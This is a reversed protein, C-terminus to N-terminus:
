LGDGCWAHLQRLGVGSGRGLTFLYGRGLDDELRFRDEQVLTVVGRLHGRRPLDARRTLISQRQKMATGRAHHLCLVCTSRGGIAQGGRHRRLAHQRRRDSRACIVSAGLIRRAARPACACAALASGGWPQGDSVASGLSRDATAAGSRAADSSLCRYHRVRHDLSAAGGARVAGGGLPQAAWMAPAWCHARSSSGCCTFFVSQVGSIPSWYRYARSWAWWPSSGDAWWM